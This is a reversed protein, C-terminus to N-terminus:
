KAFEHTAQAVKYARTRCGPDNAADVYARNIKDLLEDEDWTYSCRPVWHEWMLEFAQEPSVGWDRMVRAVRFATGAVGECALDKTHRLQLVAYPINKPHDWGDVPELLGHVPRKPKPAAAPLADVPYAADPDHMLDGSLIPLRGKDRKVKNPWNVTGALRFIHDISGVKDSELGLKEQIFNAVGQSILKARQVDEATYIGLVPKVRWAAQMGYGSRWILTPKLKIRKFKRQVLAAWDDPTTDDPPDLDVVIWQLAAIDFALELPHMKERSRRKFAHKRSPNAEFYIGHTKNWYTVWERMAEVSKPGFTAVPMRQIQRAGEFPVRDPHIGILKWPGRVRVARLFQEVLDLDPIM